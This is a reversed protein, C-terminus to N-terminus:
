NRLIFSSLIIRIVFNFSSVHMRLEKKRGDNFFYLYVGKGIHFFEDNVFM